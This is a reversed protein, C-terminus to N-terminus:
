PDEWSAVLFRKRIGGRGWQVSPLQPTGTSLYALSRTKGSAREIFRVVLRM